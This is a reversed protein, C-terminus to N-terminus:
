PRVFYGQDCRLQHAPALRSIGKYVTKPTPICSFQLYENISTPDIGFKEGTYSLLHDIKTAIVLFDSIEAYVLSQVGFHDTWAKLTDTRRDYLIVAFTGNLDVAFEDGRREYLTAIYAAPTKNAADSCGLLDAQCVLTIEPGHFVFPDVPENGEIG